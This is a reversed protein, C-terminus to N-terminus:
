GLFRGKKSSHGVAVARGVNLFLLLVSGSYTRSAQGAFVARGEIDKPEYTRVIISM